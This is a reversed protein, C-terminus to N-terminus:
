LEAAGEVEGEEEVRPGQAGIIWSDACQRGGALTMTM